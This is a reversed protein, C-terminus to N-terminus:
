ASATETADDGRRVLVFFALSYSLSMGAIVLSFYYRPHFLSAPDHPGHFLVSPRTWMAVLQTAAFTFIWSFALATVNSKEVFSEVLMRRRTDASVPCSRRFVRLSGAVLMALGALQCLLLANHLFNVVPYDPRSFYFELAQVAQSLGFLFIFFAFLLRQREITEALQAEQNMSM